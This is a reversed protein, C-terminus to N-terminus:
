PVVIQLCRHVYPRGAPRYVRQLHGCADKREREATEGAPLKRQLQKRCLLKVHPLSRRRSVAVRNSITATHDHVPDWINM